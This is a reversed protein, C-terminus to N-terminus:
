YGDFARFGVTSAVGTSVRSNLLFFLAGKGKGKRM